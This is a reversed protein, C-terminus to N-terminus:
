RRPPAIRRVGPPLAIEGDAVVPVEPHVRAFFGRAADIQFFQDVLQHQAADVQGDEDAEAFDQLMAQAFNVACKLVGDLLVAVLAVIAANIRDLDVLLALDDFFDEFEAPRVVEAQFGARLRFQQGHHREGVVLRRDDAVAEFIVFVDLHRHEGLLDPPLDDRHDLLVGLEIQDDLMGLAHTHPRHDAHAHLEGAAPGPAPFGGAAVARLEAEGDGFRHARELRQLIEPM